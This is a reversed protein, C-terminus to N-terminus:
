STRGPAMSSCSLSSGVGVVQEFFELLHNAVASKQKDVTIVHYCDELLVIQKGESAIEDFVLYANRPSTMDDELAQIIVTPATVQGLLGRTRTILRDIDALTKLPFLPYGNLASSLTVKGNGNGNGNSGWVAQQRHRIWERIRAVPNYAARIRDQLAADKIGFPPGDMHFFFPQLFRPIVKLAFPLLKQTWPTNWGDYVITPSLVGVGDVKVLTSVELALLGSASLGIVFVKEYHDRAFRLQRLVHEGWDQDNSRWLDRLRACHGPLTTGYVNWGYRAIKRALYFMEVPTGTVGHILYVLVGSESPLLLDTRRRGPMTGLLGFQKAQASRM